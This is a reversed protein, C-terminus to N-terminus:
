YRWKQYDPKRQHLAILTDFQQLFDGIKIEEDVLNPFMIKYSSLKPVTLQPVGTSEFVVKSRNIAEALFDVNHKSEVVLM